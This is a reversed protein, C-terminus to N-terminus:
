RDGESPCPWADSLKSDTFFSCPLNRSAECISLTRHRFLAKRSWTDPAVILLCRVNVVTPDQAPQSKTSWSFIPIHLMNGIRPAQFDENQRRENEMDLVEYLIDTVTQSQCSLTDAGAMEDYLWTHCMTESAVHEFIDGNIVIITMDIEFVLKPSENVLAALRHDESPMQMWKNWLKSIM